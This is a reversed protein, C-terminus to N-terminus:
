VQDIIYIFGPLRTECDRLNVTELCKKCIAAFMGTQSNHSRSTKIDIGDIQIAVGKDSSIKLCNLNRLGSGLSEKLAQRRSIKIDRPTWLLRIINEFRNM